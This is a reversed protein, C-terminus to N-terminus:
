NVKSRYIMIYIWSIIAFFFLKLYLQMPFISAFIFVGSTIIFFKVHRRYNWKIPHLIQGAIIDLLSIISRSIVLGVIISYIGIKDITQITIFISIFQGALYIYMRYKTNSSLITGVGYLGGLAQIFISFILPWLINKAQSYDPGTLIMILENSFLVIFICFLSSILMFKEAVLDLLRNSNNQNYNSMLIPTFATQFAQIPVIIFICIKTAVAYQGLLNLDLKELIFARDIIPQLLGLFAIAGLPIGYQILKKEIKNQRINKIVKFEKRLIIFSIVGFIIWVGLYLNFLINIDGPYVVTAVYVAVLMCIAYSLTLLMFLKIRFTIRLYSEANTYIVIFPVGIILELIIEEHHPEIGFQALDIIKIIIILIFSVVISITLQLKLSGTVLSESTGLKKYDHYYRAITSDQGLMCMAVILYVSMTFFDILGFEDVTYNKALMSFMILSVSKSILNGMGYGFTDKKIKSLMKYIELM